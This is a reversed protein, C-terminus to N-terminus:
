AKGYFYPRFNCFFTLVIFIQICVRLSANKPHDSAPHLTLPNTEATFITTGVAVPLSYNYKMRASFKNVM